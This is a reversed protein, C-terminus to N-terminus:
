GLIAVKIVVKHVPGQGALPAHADQPFLVVFQGPGVELYHAPQGSWLELDNERVYGRSHGASVRRQWGIQDTGAIIYQVDLFRDHTELPSHEKGRGQTRAVMAYIRDTDIEIRGDPLSALDTRRLFGFAASLGPHSSEYNMAEDIHDHIM